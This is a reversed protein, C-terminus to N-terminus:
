IVFHDPIKTNSSVVIVNDRIFVGDGDYQHLKKENVLRVHDGITVNEDIIAKTITCNNGIQFSTINSQGHHKYDENGLLISDRIVTGSGVVSRM